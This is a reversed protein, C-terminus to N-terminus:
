EPTFRTLDDFDVLRGLPYTTRFYKIADSLSAFNRLVRTFGYFGLNELYDGRVYVTFVGPTRELCAAVSKSDLM